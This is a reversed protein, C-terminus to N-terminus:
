PHNILILSISKPLFIIVLRSLMNLLLSMVKGVFTRRTLAITKGTTMYPYFLPIIFFASCQVIWFHKQVTTNSFVRSPRKSQLSIWGTLRLPFWDQINMPPASASASTGISQGVSAFLWSMLVSESALFSQLCSFTIVSSLIITCCWQSLLGSNSCAGPSPSPCTFRTHQLGHPWLSHSM